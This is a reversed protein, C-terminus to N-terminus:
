FIDDNKNSSLKFPDEEVTEETEADLSLFSDLLSGESENENTMLDPMIEENARDVLALKQNINDVLIQGQQDIVGRAILSRQMEEIGIAFEKTGVNNNVMGILRSFDMGSFLAHLHLRNNKVHNYSLRIPREIKKILERRMKVDGQPTRQTELREIDFKIYDIKDKLDQLTFEADDRDIEGKKFKMVINKQQAELDRIRAKSSMIKETVDGNRMEGTERAYAECRNLFMEINQKINVSEIAKTLDDVPVDYIDESKAFRGTSECLESWANVTRLTKKLLEVSETDYLGGSRAIKIRWKRLTSIVDNYYKAAKGSSVDTISDLGSIIEDLLKKCNKMNSSEIGTQSEGDDAIVKMGEKATEAYERVKDCLGLDPAFSASMKVNDMCANKDQRLKELTQSRRSDDGAKVAIEALETVALRMSKNFEGNIGRSLIEDMDEIVEEFFSERAEDSFGHNLVSVFQKNVKIKNANMASILRQIKNQNM